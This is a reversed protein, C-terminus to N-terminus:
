AKKANEAQDQIQRLQEQTQKLQQEVQAKQNGVQARELRITELEKQLENRKNNAADRELHAQHLKDTLQKRLEEKEKEMTQVKDYLQNRSVTIRQLNALISNLISSFDNVSQLIVLKQNNFFQEFDESTVIRKQQEQNPNINQVQSNQQQQQNPIIVQPKNQQANMFPEEKKDKM